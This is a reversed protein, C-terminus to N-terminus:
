FRNVAIDDTSRYVIATRRRKWSHFLGEYAESSRDSFVDSFTFIAFVGLALALMALIQKM